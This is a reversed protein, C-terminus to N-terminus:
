PEKNAQEMWRQLATILEGVESRDFQIEWRGTYFRLRPEGNPGVFSTVLLGDPVGKLDTSM